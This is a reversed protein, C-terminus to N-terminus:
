SMAAKAYNISVALDELPDRLHNDHEIFIWGDYGVELLAKIVDANDFGNNGAGLECFRYGPIGDERTEGTLFVDKLHVVCFREHYKRVVEVPDGGAMSMHGADFVVRAEPVAKMFDEFEQQNEIRQHMHNHLAVKIGFKSVARCMERSRRCFVDFDVKRDNQGPTLWVYEKGLGATWEVGVQVNPGRCTTFDMGLKRYLTAKNLADSASCAELREIGNFGLEKLALLRDELNYLGGYWVSMGFDAVGFKM